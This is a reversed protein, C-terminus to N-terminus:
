GGGYGTASWIGDVNPGTAITVTAGGPDISAQTITHKIVTTDVHSSPTVNFDVVNSLGVSIDGGVDTTGNTFTGWTKRMTGIVSAGTFTSAFAM